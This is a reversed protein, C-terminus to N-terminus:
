RDRSSADKPSQVFQFAWGADQSDDIIGEEACQRLVEGVRQRFVDECGAVVKATITFVEDDPRHDDDSSM